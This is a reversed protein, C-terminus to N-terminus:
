VRPRAIGAEDMFSAYYDGVKQADSGPRASAAAGQILDVTRKNTDDVLIRGVGYDSRDAPIPHAKIWSGNAYTWFDDGPGVSTDM